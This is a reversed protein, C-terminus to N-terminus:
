LFHTFIGRAAPSIIWIPKVPRRQQGGSVNKYRGLTNIHPFVKPGHVAELPGVSFRRLFVPTQDGTKQTKPATAARTPPTESGPM